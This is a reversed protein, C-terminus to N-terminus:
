HLWRARWALRLYGLITRRLNIKSVGRRDYRLEFPVEAPRAGARCAKLFLETGGAFGNEEMLPKGYREVIRQLAAVRYARFGNTYTSIGKAPAAWSLLQHVGWSMLLRLPPVGVAHGGATSYSATVIDFGDELKAIMAQIYVPSHTRDADLTVVIDEARGHALVWEFGSRLAAGYGQTRAHSVVIVRQEAPLSACFAETGDSSGDNVVCLTFVAGARTFQDALDPLLEELSEKENLCPLVVYRSGTM